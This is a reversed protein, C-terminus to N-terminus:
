KKIKCGQPLARIIEDLGGGIRKQVAKAVDSTKEDGQMIEVFKSCHKKVASVPGGMVRGDELMGVAYNMTPHLYKTDGYIMFAGKPLTGGQETQKSVQHPKVYFVELMAMKRKWGQSFTVTFEAAEQMTSQPIQKESPNKIVVFPSGRMDTHFVLDEKDAHKKILIENTTADRGGVVLFGDSSLFWRFKEYWEQKRRKQVAAQKKESEAESAILKREYESIIKRTGEIKKKEKKGKEFYEAANEEVSKRIDLAIRMTNVSLLRLNFINNNFTLM